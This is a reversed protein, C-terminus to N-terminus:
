SLGSDKQHNQQQQWAEPRLRWRHSLADQGLALGM